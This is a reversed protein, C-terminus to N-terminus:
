LIALMASEAINRLKLKFVKIKISKNSGKSINASKSIRLLLSSKEMSNELEWSGKTWLMVTLSWNVNPNASQHRKVSRSAGSEEALRDHEVYPM